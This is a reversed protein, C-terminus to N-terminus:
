TDKLALAVSIRSARFAAPAVGLIGLLFAGAFGVLISVADLELAFASMALGVSTGDLAFRAVLLGALGGACALLVSEQ